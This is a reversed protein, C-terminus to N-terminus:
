VTSRRVRRAKSKSVPSSAQAHSLGARNRADELFAKREAKDEIVRALPVVEREFYWTTLARDHAAEVKRRARMAALQFDSMLDDACWLKLGFRDALAHLAVVANAFPGEQSDYLDIVDGGRGCGFCWWSDYFGRYTDSPYCYFSPERVEHDPLPCRGLLKDGLTRLDTELEAVQNCGVTGKVSAFGAQLVTQNLSTAHKSQYSEHPATMLDGKPTM